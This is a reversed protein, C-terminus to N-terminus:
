PEHVYRAKTDKMTIHRSDLRADLTRGILILGPQKVSVAVKSTARKADPFVDLQQTDMRVPKGDNGASTAVVDGRLRIEDGGASVWGTKSRVDWPDGPAGDRPPIVFAPTTIALTRVAPDRTLTPARLTFSEHGQRDLAVLEFDHLTYDSRGAELPAAGPGRQRWMSTGILLAAALLVIGLIVRGNM